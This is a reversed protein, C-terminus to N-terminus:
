FNYRAGVTMIPKQDDELGRGSDNGSATAYEAFTYMKQSFKYNVGAAYQTDSDGDNDLQSAIAYVNGMGYGYVAALGINQLDGQTEVLAGVNLNPLLNYDARFGVLSDESGDEFDENAQDFGVALNLDGMTYGLYAQTSVASSDQIEDEYNEAGVAQLKASVGFRLGGFDASDFAVTKGRARAGGSNLARYGANEPIDTVSSVQQFYIADFNGATVRGIDAFNAGFYSNRIQMPERNSEAADFRFETNAFVSLNQNVLHTGRFGFRSGLNEFDSDGDVNIIGMRLRGHLDVVTGDADYLNAANANGATMALGSTMAIAAAVSLATKNM